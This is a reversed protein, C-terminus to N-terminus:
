PTEESVDALEADPHRPVALYVSTSADIRRCDVLVLGSHFAARLERALAARLHSSAALEADSPVPIWLVGDRDISRLWDAAGVDPSRRARVAAYPDERPQLQWEVVLRDTASRGYYDAVYDVGVAGLTALNFHGNRTLIPDYTWRMRTHGWRLAVERQSEKLTRGVGYGQFEPAVVASQSYHYEGGAEDRGAFGYAFGVIQGAPTFMGVASGGNLKLAFMLNPNLSFSPDQYGFVRLYLENAAQFEEYRELEKSVLGQPSDVVSNRVSGPRHAVSSEAGVVAIM